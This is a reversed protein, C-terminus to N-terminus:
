NYGTLTWGNIFLYFISYNKVWDSEEEEEAPDSIEWDDAEGFGWDDIEAEKLFTGIAESEDTVHEWYEKLDEAAERINDYSNALDDYSHKLEEYKEKGEFYKARVKDCREQAARLQKQLDNREERLKGAGNYVDKLEDRLFQNKVELKNVDTTLRENEQKLIALQERLATLSQLTPEMRDVYTALHNAMTEFDLDPKVAQGETM